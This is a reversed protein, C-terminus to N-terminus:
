AVSVTVATDLWTSSLGFLIPASNTSLDTIRALGPVISSVVTCGMPLRGGWRVWCPSRAGRTREAYAARM